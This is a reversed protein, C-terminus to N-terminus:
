LKKLTERVRSVDESMTKLLEEIGDFREMGRVRDVFIVEIEKGYIDEDFDLIHAEVRPKEDPTFTPNNGVSIAAELRKGDLEVFGAYVGDKPTFGEVAAKGPAPGLNATPFGLERGRADGHVVVGRLAHHKGLLRSTEKVNGEGLLKRVATSSVRGLDALAVESIEHVEFDGRQSKEKLTSVTGAADKGFRFDDGVFVHKAKLQHVLYKNIFAEPSLESLERTFPLMVTKDIGLIELLERRQEPSKVPNPCIEPKLISLPNNEFTLVVSKLGEKAATQTLEELIRQHGLHLAEFKGIAVASREPKTKSLWLIGLVPLVLPIFVYGIGYTSWVSPHAFYEPMTLSLTGVVIVGVLEFIIAAWAVTRWVGRHIILAVTAVIYVAAAVASLTYAVPAEDFKSVIQYFSRFSAALALVIYVMVLVRGLGKQREAKTETM